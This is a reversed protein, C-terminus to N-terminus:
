RRVYVACRGHRCSPRAAQREYRDGHELAWRGAPSDDGAVLVRVHAGELAAGLLGDDGLDPPLFVVRYSQTRDWALDALDLSEDFALSEAPGVRTEAAAMVLPPGDAGVALGREEDTMTAYASLPPGEGTLGPVARVVEVLGVAASAILVWSGGRRSAGALSAAAGAFVLGPFALVYRAVAPDPVLLPTAVLAAAALDRRRAVWVLAFPLAAITLVGLGGFRM